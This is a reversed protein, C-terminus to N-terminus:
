SVALIEIRNGFPDDTFFRRRPALEEDWTVRHGAAAVRAAMAVLDTVALGVHAKTAPRFDRETGLHVEARHGNFWCGGRAALVPPKSVEVLGLVGCYFGRGEEEGGVPMALQAHDLGAVAVVQEAGPRRGLAFVRRFPLVTGHSAAPYADGLLAGYEALFGDHDAPPLATLVPRLATGKMWELVANEGQLLQFYTTEWASADLGADLLVSLYEDPDHSSPSAMADPLSTIWRPSALLEALLRHTPEGFNGPVQLALVGGPRVFSALRALVPLHDPVWQLTANTVIIDLPEEPEFDRLDALEFELRGPIERSRGEALMEASTDVGVVHAGPWRRSLEATLSGTGCGLDVIETAGPLNVGALLDVFPRSREAAFQEYQHPDWKPAAASGLSGASRGGTLTGERTEATM